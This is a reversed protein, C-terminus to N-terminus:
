GPTMVGGRQPPAIVFVSPQRHLGLLEILRKIHPKPNRLSLTRGHARLRQALVALDLILSPDAFELESLDVIVDRTARLATSIPRRRSGSTTRDEDGSVRLIGRQEDFSVIRPFSSLYRALSLRM